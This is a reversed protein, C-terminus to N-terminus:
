EEAIKKNKNKLYLFVKNECIWLIPVKPHIAPITNPKELTHKIKDIVEVVTALLTKV